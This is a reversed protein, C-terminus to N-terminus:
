RHLLHHRVQLLHATGDGLVQEQLVLLFFAQPQHRGAVVALDAVTWFGDLVRGRGAAGRLARSSRLHVEVVEGLLEADAAAVQAEGVLRGHQVLQLYSASWFGLGRAPDPDPGTRQVRAVGM